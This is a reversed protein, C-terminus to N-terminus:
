KSAGRLGWGTWGAAVATSIVLLFLMVAAGPRGYLLHNVAAGLAFIVCTMFAAAAWFLSGGGVTDFDAFVETGDLDEPLGQPGLEVPRVHEFRDTNRSATM